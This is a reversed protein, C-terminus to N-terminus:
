SRASHRTKGGAPHRRGPAGRSGITALVEEERLAGWGDENGRGRGGDDRDGDDSPSGVASSIRAAPSDGAGGIIISKVMLRVDPHESNGSTVVCTYDGLHQLPGREVEFTASTSLDGMRTHRWNYRIPPEANDVEACLLLRSAAPLCVDRVGDPAAAPSYM